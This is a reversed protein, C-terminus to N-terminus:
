KASATFSRPPASSIHHVCAVGAIVDFMPINTASILLSENWIRPMAFRQKSGTKKTLPATHFMSTPLKEAEPM